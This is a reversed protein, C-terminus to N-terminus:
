VATVSRSATCVPSTLSVGGRARFPPLSVPELSGLSPRVRGSINDLHRAFLISGTQKTIIDAANLGSAVDELALLDCDVWDL